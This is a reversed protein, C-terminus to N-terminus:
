LRELIEGEAKAAFVTPRLKTFFGNELIGPIRNIEDELAATDVPEKWRCDLIMNGNDTIVPGDKKIGERIICSAGLKELWITVSVRAEEIIEVPLPFVTGLHQVLKSEDAVIVFLKSNYAAIKERLMAAGGGKILRNEVDIEDAGDITLDLSGGINPSNLSYVPIGLQECAIRTQFSTVVAQIEKLKGGTIYKALRYVAQIATSGTGLGIKMGNSILGREILTDIAYEGALKKQEAQTFQKM